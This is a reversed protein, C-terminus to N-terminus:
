IPKLYVIPLYLQWVNKMILPQVNQTTKKQKYLETICYM